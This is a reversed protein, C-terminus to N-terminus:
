LPWTLMRYPSTITCGVQPPVSPMALLMGNHYVPTSAFYPYSYGAITLGSKPMVVKFEYDNLPPRNVNNEFIPGEFLAVDIQGSILALFM